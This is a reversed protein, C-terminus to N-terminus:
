GKVGGLAVGGIIRKQFILFVLTTPIMSLVSMALLSNWDVSYEGAFSALALQITFRNKSSIVLLPWIYDNWRWMFSIIGLVSLTPTVLPTMIQLFTRTESAGDIYAAEMFDSSVGIFAQRMMFTGTPTAMCPIIVGWLSDYMGTKVIVKFVPIMIIEVPIMLTAMVMAFLVGGGPFRFKEFAYGASLSLMLTLATAVTAVFLTNLFFTVFNGKAMALSYNELTPNQPIIHPPWSFLESTGKFSSIILWICPFLFLVCVLTMVLSIVANKRSQKKKTPM